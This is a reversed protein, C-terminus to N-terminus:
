RRSRLCLCRTNRFRTYRSQISKASISRKEHNNTILSMIASDTEHYSDGQERSTVYKCLIFGSCYLYRRKDFSPRRFRKVSSNSKRKLITRGKGYSGDKIPCIRLLFIDTSRPNFCLFWLHYHARFLRNNHLFNTLIMALKWITVGTLSLLIAEKCLKHQTAEGM